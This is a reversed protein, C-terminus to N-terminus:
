KHSTNDSGPAPTEIGRDAADASDEPTEEDVEGPFMDLDFPELFRSVEEDTIPVASNPRQFFVILDFLKDEVAPDVYGERIWVVAGAGRVEELGSFRVKLQDNVMEPVVRGQLTKGKVGFTRDRHPPTGEPAQTASDALDQDLKVITISLPNPGMSQDEDTLHALDRGFWYAEVGSSFPIDGGLLLEFEGPTRSEDLPTKPDDAIGTGEGRASEDYYVVEELATWASESNVLGGFLQIFWAATAVVLFGPILCGCGMFFMWKPPGKTPVPVDAIEEDFDGSGM